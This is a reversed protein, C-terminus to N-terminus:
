PSTSYIKLNAFFREDKKRMREEWAQKHELDWKWRGKLLRSSYPAPGRCRNGKYIYDKGTEWEILAIRSDEEAWHAKRNRWRESANVNCRTCERGDPYWKYPTDKRVSKHKEHWGQLHPPHKGAGGYRRIPKKSEPEWMLKAIIMEIMYPLM